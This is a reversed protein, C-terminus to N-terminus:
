LFCGLYELFQFDMPLTYSEVSKTVRELGDSLLAPVFVGHSGDHAVSLRYGESGLELELFRALKVEDEVLLIHATTM